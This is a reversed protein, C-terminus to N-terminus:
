DNKKERIIDLSLSFKYSGDKGGIISTLVGNGFYKGGRKEDVIANVFLGMSKSDSAQGNLGVKGKDFSIDNLTLGSPLIEYLRELTLSYDVAEKFIKNIAELKIKLTRIETETERYSDIAEEAAKIKKGLDRNEQALYFSYTLIVVLFIIALTLIGASLKTLFSLTKESFQVKRKDVPLLNIKTKAM